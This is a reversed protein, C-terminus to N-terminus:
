NWSSCALLQGYLCDIEVARYLLHEIYNGVCVIAISSFHFPANFKYLSPFWGYVCAICYPLAVVINTFHTYTSFITNSHNCEVRFSNIKRSICEM